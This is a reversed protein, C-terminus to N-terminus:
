DPQVEIRRPRSEMKKPLTITLVGDRYSAAIRDQEVGVPLSFSRLFRGYSREVRHFHEAEDGRDMRREGRLTLVGEALSIDIDKRTLGPLECYIVLDTETELIDASPTWSGVANPDEGGYRPEALATEFLRNMREQIALLDKFPERVKSPM